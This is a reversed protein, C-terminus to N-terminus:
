IKINNKVFIIFSIIFLVNKIKIGAASTDPTFTYEAKDADTVATGEAESSVAKFWQYSLTGGDKSVAKVRLTLQEASNLHLTKGKPQEMIEPNLADSQIQGDTIHCKARESETQELKNNPSRSIQLKRGPDPLLPYGHRPIDPRVLHEQFQLMDVHAEAPDVGDPVHAEADHVVGQGADDAGVSGSLRRDEVDDGADVIRRRSADPEPVLVDRGHRRILHVPESDGSGELVQPEEPAGRHQLVDHGGCLVAEAVGKPLVQHPLEERAVAGVGLIAVAKPLGQEVGPAPGHDFPVDAGLAHLKQLPHPQRVAGPLGRPRQGVPHLPPELNRAGQRQVRLQQQQVLRRRPHVGLLYKGQVIQDRADMPLKAQRGQDDLVM